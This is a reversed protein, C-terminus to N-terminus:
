REVDSGARRGGYRASLVGPRGDLADVEIGSDDALAPLGSMRAYTVAKLTANELYSRAGEIVDVRGLGVDLRSCCRGAAARSSPASSALKGRIQPRWVLRRGTRDTM